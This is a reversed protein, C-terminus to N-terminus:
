QSPHGLSKSCQAAGLPDGIKIFQKQAETLAESAEASKGQMHLISGLRQLCQAAGFLDGIKIFQNQAETLAESAETYKSQKGMIEASCQLGRIEQVSTGIKKGRVADLLHTSPHTYYLFRSIDLIMEMTQPIPHIKVAQTLLSGINGMDPELMETAEVFGPGFHMTAYQHVVNWFYEELCQTHAEKAPHHQTIFYRIPSLVKLWNGETFLLAADQLKFFLLDVDQFGAGIIPLREEWQHLGDPLHCLMSLLQIADPNCVIDPAELSIAISVEFSELKDPNAGYAVLMTTRKARWTNCMFQLPRNRSVQAFLQVALPVYGLEELIIDLLQGNDGECEQPNIELFLKKAAQSSLPPLIQSHTWTINSPPVSGRMTVILSVNKASGIKALLDRVGARSSDLQWASEFNDLLLLTLPAALLVQHLVTLMNEGAVPPVRLTQLILAALADASIIADCGVFYRRNDFQKLHHLVHKATSTKGIGGAGLIAVRVQKEPTFL